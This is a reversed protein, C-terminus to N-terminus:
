LGGGNSGRGIKRDIEAIEFQLERNIERLRRAQDRDSPGILDIVDEINDEASRLYRRLERLDKPSLSMLPM